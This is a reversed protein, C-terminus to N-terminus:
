NYIASKSIPQSDPSLFNDRTQTKFTSRNHSVRGVYINGQGRVEVEQAWCSVSSTQTCIQKRTSGARLCLGECMSLEVLSFLLFSVMFENVSAVKDTGELCDHIVTFGNFGSNIM